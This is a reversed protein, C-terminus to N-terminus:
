DGECVREGSATRVCPRVPPAPEIVTRREIVVTDGPRPETAAEIGRNIGDITGGVIAGVGAGISAGAQAADRGVDGARAPTGLSLTALVLITANLARM